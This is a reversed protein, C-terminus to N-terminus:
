RAGDREFVLYGPLREIEHFAPVRGFEAGPYLAYIADDPQRAVVVYRVFAQPNSLVSAYEYQYPLVFREPAGLVYVLPFLATDDVLIRGSTGLRAAIQRFPVLNAEVTGRHFLLGAFAREEADPSLFPAFFSAVLSLALTATLLKSPQIADLSFFLVLMFLGLLGITPRYLGGFISFVIFIIPTAYVVTAPIAYAARGRRLSVLGVFYPLTVPLSVLLALGATRLTQLPDGAAALLDPTVPFTRFFSGRGHAYAWPDGLFVWNVYSWALAFFATPVAITLAVSIAQARSRRWLPLAAAPVIAFLLAVSRFDVFFALGLLTSGAFLDLSYDDRLFRTIFYISGAMLLAFLLTSADEVTLYLLVPSVVVYLQALAQLGRDVVRSGIFDVIGAVALGAIVANGILPNPFPLQLLFSLPPYVFGINVLRPPLGHLALGVKEGFFALNLALFGEQELSRAVLYYLISLVTATLAFRLVRTRQRLIPFGMGRMTM